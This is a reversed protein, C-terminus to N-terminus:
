TVWQAANNKAPCGDSQLPEAFLPDLPPKPLARVGNLGIISRVQGKADVVAIQHGQRSLAFIKQSQNQYEAETVAPLQSDNQKAAPDILGSDKAANPKSFQEM